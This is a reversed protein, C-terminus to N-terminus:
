RTGLRVNFVGATACDSLVCVFVYVHVYLYLCEGGSFRLQKNVDSTNISAHNTGASGCARVATEGGLLVCIQQCPDPSLHGLPIYPCATYLIYVCPSWLTTETTLTNKFIFM